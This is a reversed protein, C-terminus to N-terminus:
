PAESAPRFVLAVAVPMVAYTVASVSIESPASRQGIRRPTARARPHRRPHQRLMPSRLLDLLFRTHELPRDKAAELGLTILNLRLSNQLSVFHKDLSEVEGKGTGYKDLACRIRLVVIATAHILLQQAASPSGGVQATLDAITANVIKAERTRGDLDRVARQSSCVSARAFSVVPWPRVGEM